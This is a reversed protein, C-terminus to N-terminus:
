SCSLHTVGLVNKHKGTQTSFVKNFKKMTTIFNQDMEIIPFSKIKSTKKKNQAHLLSM